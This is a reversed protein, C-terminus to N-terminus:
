NYTIDFIIKFKRHVENPYKAAIVAHLVARPSIYICFNYNEREFYTNDSRQVLTFDVGAIKNISNNNESMLSHHWLSHRM